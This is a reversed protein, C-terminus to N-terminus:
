FSMHFSVCEGQWPSDVTDIDVEQVGRTTRRITRSCSSFRGLSQDSRISYHRYAGFLRVAELFEEAKEYNRAVAFM